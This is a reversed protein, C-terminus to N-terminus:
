TVEEQQPDENTAKQSATDVASVALDGRDSDDGNGPDPSAVDSRALYLGFCHM